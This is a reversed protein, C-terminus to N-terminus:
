EIGARWEENSIIDNDEIREILDNLHWELVDWNIGIEANHNNKASELVEMLEGDSLKQADEFHGRLDDIHWTITVGSM